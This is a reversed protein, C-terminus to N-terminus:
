AVKRAVVVLYPPHGLGVPRLVHRDLWTLVPAVRRLASIGARALVQNRHQLLGYEFVGVSARLEVKIAAISDCLDFFANGKMLRMNHTARVEPDFADNWLAYAGRLYPIGAIVIGGPRCFEVQREIAGKPDDFHEILGFSMAIDFRGRLRDLSPAFMDDCIVNEADYGHRAFLRRNTRTGEETYEIGYPTVGLGKALEILNYGPASGLEVVTQAREDRLRPLLVEDWLERLSRNTRYTEQVADLYGREDDTVYDKSWFAKETLRNM